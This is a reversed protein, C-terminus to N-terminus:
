HSALLGNKLALHINLGYRLGRYILKERNYKGFFKM